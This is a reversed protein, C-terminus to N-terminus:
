GKIVALIQAVEDRVAARFKNGAEQVKPRYEKRVEQIQAKQEETLNLEKANAIRHALRDRVRDKREDKLELLKEKQEATLVDRVQAMEERVLAGVEKGVAQVKAKQEDTLKMAALVERRRKGAKLAEERAQRQEASLTGRLGEMAKEIKPRCEKRIDAIKAVEGETLDLERLHAVRECLGEFQREKREEKMARLKEQQEPTLVKRIKDVEEKVVAALEKAAKEVEPRCEKRVDAIKAEQEDTLNLDQLREALAERERQAQAQAQACFWTGIVVTLVATLAKM